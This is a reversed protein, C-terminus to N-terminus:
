PPSRASPSAPSCRFDRRSSSSPEIPSCIMTIPNQNELFLMSVFQTGWGALLIGLAGGAMALMLSETLFQRVLRQHTAGVAM